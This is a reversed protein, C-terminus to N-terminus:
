HGPFHTTFKTIKGASFFRYRCLLMAYAKEILKAGICFEFVLIIKTSFFLIFYNIFSDISDFYFM